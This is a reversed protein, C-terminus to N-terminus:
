LIPTIDYFEAIDDGIKISKTIKLNISNELLDIDIDGIAAKADNGLIKPAKIWILRDVLGNKIFSTALKSGGEVLLRTIGKEALIGLIYQLDLGDEKKPAAISEIFRPKVPLMNESFVWVPNEKTATKLLNSDASIQGNSDIVVRVPSQEKLGDIRCDLTPNDALVTGIGVMIADSQARLIHSFKRADESTIWKSQGKSTAIKGDLSTAIKLTILPRNSTKNLFFGANLRKAEEECVGTIVEIGKNKLREIGQGNVDPNPDVCAIVVKKVGSKIVADCCPSTKGIHSCPELTVYLVAGKAMDGAQNLAIKEAHPRGGKATVAAAVVQGDRVIVCGVSPNPATVGLNRRAYSLAMKMFRIDSTKHM